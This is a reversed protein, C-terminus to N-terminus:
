TIVGGGLIMEGQYVVASQGPAIARQPKEFSVTVIGDNFSLKAPSASHGYRLQVDARFPFKPEGSIWNVSDMELLDRELDAPNRSVILINKDYDKKVVFYPGGSLGIGQRQGITHFWLGSHQGIVDGKEDVIDGPKQGLYDSLFSKLSDRIFCVEMSEKVGSLPLKFDNALERVESKQYNSLPFVLRKIQEPRLKWLFYSQDKIRDKARYIKGNEIRAYHGTAVLDFGMSKAKELLLGLKISENCDVCPNPTRGKSYEDIFRDVVKKKFDDAFNFTYFPIGLIDAVIRARAEATPSCCRNFGEKSEDQTPQSWFRMFAGAVSFGKSKLLAATVSSDLGGSMAVFVKRKLPTNSQKHKNWIRAMNTENVPGLTAGVNFTGPLDSKDMEREHIKNPLPITAFIKVSEGEIM